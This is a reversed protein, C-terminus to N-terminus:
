LFKINIALEEFNTVFIRFYWKFNYRLIKLGKFGLKVRLQWEKEFKNGCCVFAVSIFFSKRWWCWLFFLFFISPSFIRYGLYDERISIEFKNANGWCFSAPSIFIFIFVFLQSPPSRFSIQLFYQYIIFNHQTNSFNFILLSLPNHSIHSIRSPFKKIFKLKFILNEYFNQLKLGDGDLNLADWLNFGGGVNIEWRWNERERWTKCLKRYNKAWETLFAFFIQTNDCILLFLNIKNNNDSHFNGLLPMTIIMM